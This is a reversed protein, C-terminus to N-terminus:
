QPAPTQTMPIATVYGAPIQFRAWGNGGDHIFLKTIPQGNWSGMVYTLELHQKSYLSQPVPSYSAGNWGADAPREDMQSGDAFEFGFALQPLNENGASAPLTDQLTFRIVIYGKDSPVTNIGNLLKQSLPTGDARAATQISNIRISIGHEFTFTKGLPRDVPADARAVLPVCVVAAAIFLRLFSRM